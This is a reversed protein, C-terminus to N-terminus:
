RRDALPLRPIPTASAETVPPLTFVGRLLQQKRLRHALSACAIRLRHALSGCAIVGLLPVGAGRGPARRHGRGGPLGVLGRPAGEAPDPVLGFYRDPIAGCEAVTPM